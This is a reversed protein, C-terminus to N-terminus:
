VRQDRNSNFLRKGGLKFKSKGPDAVVGVSHACADGISRSMALGPYSEKRLWVRMPGVNEGFKGKYSDIRGGRELIRQKEIPDDPKHDRTIPIALWQRDNEEVCLAKSEEPKLSYDKDKLSGIVARSDGSNASVLKNGNVMVTVITSGSFEYGFGQQALCTDNKIFGDSIAKNRM